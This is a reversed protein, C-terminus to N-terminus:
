SCIQLRRFTKDEMDSIEKMIYLRMLSYPYECRKLDFLDKRVMCIICIQDSLYSRYKNRIFYKGDDEDTQLRMWVMEEFKIKYLFM